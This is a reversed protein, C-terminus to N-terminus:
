PGSIYVLTNKWDCCGPKFIFLIKFFVVIPSLSREIQTRVHYYDESITAKKDEGKKKEKRKKKEKKPILEKYHM